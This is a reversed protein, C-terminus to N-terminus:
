ANNGQMGLWEATKTLGEEVTMVPAYGLMKQALSIDAWSQRIDGPRPMTFEPKIDSGLVSNIAHILEILSMSTGCAINYIGAKRGPLSMVRLNAEVVNDVYTFDRAQEGDGFIVPAKGDMMRTLFKPIVAAYESDPNQFPGFVNFYRLCVIDVEYLASYVQGYMEGAAKTVGYPSIPNRPLTEKLPMESANGYISSSSAFIVRKVSMKKAAQFVNLTGNVNADNSSIPERVSKEVSPIAAFHFCVDVKELARQVTSFECISGKIIQVETEIDRLNIKRGTSFDDLVRVKIGKVLLARVLNSGIFGAGGTVLCTTM